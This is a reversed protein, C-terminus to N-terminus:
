VGELRPACPGVLDTGEGLHELAARLTEQVLARVVTPAVYEGGILEGGVLLAGLLDQRCVRACPEGACGPGTTRPARSPADPLATSRHEASRWSSATLHSDAALSPLRDM